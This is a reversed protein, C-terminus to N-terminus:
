FEFFHHIVNRLFYESPQEWYKSVGNVGAFWAETKNSIQLKLWFASIKLFM